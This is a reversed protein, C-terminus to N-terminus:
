FLMISLIFVKISLFGIYCLGQIIRFLIISQAIEKRQCRLIALNVRLAYWLNNRLSRPLRLELNGRRTIVLINVQPSSPRRSPWATPRGSPYFSPRSSPRLTPIGSPRTSPWLSPQSSPWASPWTSPVCSPQRSPRHTPLAWPLRTPRSSPQLTPRRSPWSSPRGSPYHTPRSTPKFSPRSTPSSSPRKSPQTSPRPSPKKTPQETPRETPRETPQETPQESPQASPKNTPQKSPQRSPRSSPLSTPSGYEYLQVIENVSLSRNYFRIEDMVGNFFRALSSAPQTVGSNWAGIILPLNPNAAIPINGTNVSSAVATNLYIKVSADQKTLVFHSWANLTFQASGGSVGVNSSTYYGFGWLGTNTSVQEVSWGKGATHSKDFLDTYAGQPSNPYIWASLSFDNTFDFINASTIEIYANAGNFQYASNAVGFKDATLVANHVVGNTGPTNVHNNADGNFPYYAVLGNALSTEHTKRIYSFFCIFVLFHFLSVHPTTSSKM